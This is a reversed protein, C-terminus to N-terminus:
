KKSGYVAMIDPLEDKTLILDHHYIRKLRELNQSTVMNTHWLMWWIFPADAFYEDPDPVTGCEHFVIPADFGHIKGVDQYMASLVRDKKYTDAGAFDYYQKGPNFEPNPFDYHCFVWILNNLGRDYTFYNFMTIWLRNFLEGGDKSYWFWNGGLEHMPRWLVPVHADRLITLWDAIRSLDKWMAAHHPTGEIFCSDIRIKMQSQRYGEGKTPAGWHWMLTPIGGSQWWQIMNMVEKRNDSETILDQGKIAPYKGTIEHIKEVEDFTGFQSWMQGSLSKKGKIDYLYNLLAVAEPSANPVVPNVARLVGAIPFLLITLLLFAKKM